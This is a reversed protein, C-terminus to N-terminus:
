TDKLLLEIDKEQFGEWTTHPTDLSHEEETIKFYRVYVKIPASNRVLLYDCIKHNIEKFPFLWAGSLM